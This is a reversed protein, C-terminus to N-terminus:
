HNCIGEMFQCIAEMAEAMDEPHWHTYSGDPRYIDFIIDLGNDYVGFRGASSEGSLVPIEQNDDPEMAVTVSYRDKLQEWAAVPDFKERKEMYKNIEKQFSLAKPDIKKM